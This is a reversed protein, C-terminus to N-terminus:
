IQFLSNLIIGPFLVFILALPLTTACLWKTLISYSRRMEFNKGRSYLESVIPTYIFLIATLATSIFMGLPYASNYVGVLESTKFYGLMMTDTWSMIQGLFAVLLLPLSFFLLEKGIMRNKSKITLKLVIPKKKIFYFIFIISTLIHSLSFVAIGFEFPLNFLIVHLLM